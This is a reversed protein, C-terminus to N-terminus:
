DEGMSSFVVETYMISNKIQEVSTFTTQHLDRDQHKFHERTYHCVNGIAVFVLVASLVGSILIIIKWHTRNQEISNMVTYNQQIYHIVSHNQCKTFQTQQTPEIVHLRIGNCFKPFIGTSMCYYVGLEEVHVNKILLHKSQLSYKHTFTENYYFPTESTSFSRLITMPPNPLNLLIWYVEDEDLDCKITVHQGLDTPQDTLTEANEYFALLYILLQIIKKNRKQNFHTFM